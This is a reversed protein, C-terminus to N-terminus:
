REDGCRPIETGDPNTVRINTFRARATINFPATNQPFTKILIQNGLTYLKPRTENVEAYWCEPGPNKTCTYDSPCEKQKQLQGNQHLLYGIFGILLLCIIYIFILDKNEQKM